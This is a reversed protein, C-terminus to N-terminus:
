RRDSIDGGVITATTFPLVGLWPLEQYHRLQALNQLFLAIFYERWGNRRRLYGQALDRIAMIVEAVKALDPQTITEAPHGLTQQILSREFAAYEALSFGHPWHTNESSVTLAQDEKGFYRLRGLIFLRFLTEFRVFDFLIHGERVHDFDILWARGTEDVLINGPHLDGHIISKRGALPQRLLRKYISLPHPYALKSDQLFLIGERGLRLDPILRFINTVTTTLVDDRCAEVIGSVTVPEQEQLDPTPTNVKARIWVISGDGTSHLKVDNPMVQSIQLGTVTVRDGTKPCEHENLITEIKIVPYTSNTVDNGPIIQADRLRLHDPLQQGYEDAFSVSLPRSQGYWRRDLSDMLHSLADIVEQSSHAAYYTELDAIAGIPRDGAFGYSLCGWMGEEVPGSELRVATAPLRGKVFQRYRSNERRLM